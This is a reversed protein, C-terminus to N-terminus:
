NRIGRENKRAKRVFDIVKEDKVFALRHSPINRILEECFRLTFDIGAKDWFPLFLQQFMRKMLLITPEPIVRNQRGHKIFFVKKLEVKHNSATFGGGPWPTGYLYFKHKEKKIILREDNLIVTNKSYQKYLNALTSKGAGSAGFFVMGEGEDDVGLAHTLLGKDKSLHNIVLIEALPRMLNILSLNSPERRVGLEKKRFGLEERRVGRDKPKAWVQGRSFDKEILAVTEKPHPPTASFIEMVYKGNYNYLRWRNEMADFIMEEQPYEPFGGRHIRLDVETSQEDKFVFDKYFIHELDEITIQEWQLRIGINAIKLKIEQM